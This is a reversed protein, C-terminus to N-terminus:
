YHVVVIGNGGNTGPVGQYGPGNGGAGGGLGNSGATASPGRGGGQGGGGSGGSGGNQPNYIGGGGGGAYTTPGVTGITIARGSGGNGAGGGTGNPTYAVPANGGKAGAGGGGAGGHCAENPLTSTPGELAPTVGTAYGGINGFGYSPNGSDGPQDSQIEDGQASGNRGQGFANVGGGSGGDQNGRGGGKAVIYTGFTSDGGATTYGGSGVTISVPTGPTISLGPRYVLGGGAGGGSAYQYTGGGGAVALIDIKRFGRGVTLTGDSTYSTTVPAKQVISFIREKTNSAGDTATVTINTTTDGGVASTSGTVLGTAADLTLGAPLTGSTIAHTISVSEPDYAGFDFSRDTRDNDTIIFDGAAERFVPSSEKTVGGSSVVALGGGNTIRVSYPEQADLVNAPDVTGVMETDSNRTFSEFSVVAGTASILDMSSGATFNTGTVTIDQTPASELLDANSLSSITPAGFVLEEFGTATAFELKGTTTNYRITGASVSPRQATTGKPVELGQTDSTFNTNSTRIKVM